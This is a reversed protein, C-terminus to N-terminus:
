PRKGYDLGGVEEELEDSELFVRMQWRMGFSLTWGPRGNPVAGVAREPIDGKGERGWPIHGHGARCEKLM